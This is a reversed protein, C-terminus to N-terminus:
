LHALRYTIVAGHSIYGPAGATVVTDMSLCTYGLASLDYFTGISSKYTTNHTANTYGSTNESVISAAANADNRWNWTVTYYAGGGHVGTQYITSTIDVLFLDYQLGSDLETVGMVKTTANTTESQFNMSFLECSLWYSGNWFWWKNTDTEYWLDDAANATPTADQNFYTVGNLKFTGTFNHADSDGAAVAWASGTWYKMVGTSAKFWIARRPVRAPTTEQVFVPAGGISFSGSPVDDRPGHGKMGRPM